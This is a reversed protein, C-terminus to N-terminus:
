GGGPRQIVSHLIAWSRHWDNEEARRRGAAGIRRREDDDTLRELQVALSRPDDPPVLLGVDGIAEPIGGVRSALVPLGSALGESVTLGWPEPWRSPVVLADLRRLIAPLHRRDTFPRFDVALGLDAARTRLGREFRTLPARPDFGASGILTLRVTGRPLQGAAEILIDPGKDRIMRGVFGVEIPGDHSAPSPSPRFLDTDAANPVVVIRDRLQRPLRAATQEALFGSVCVILQVPALTRGLGRRGYRRFLENHAYLIMQHRDDAGAAPFEVLNHAVITAPPWNDQDALLARLRGRAWLRQGAAIGAVRDVLEVAWGPEPPLRYGIPTASDYRDPYTDEALLVYHRLTPDAAQSAAALGHVVTPVASGTAPSYHDGPTLAHIVPRM